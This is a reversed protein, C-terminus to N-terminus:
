WYRDEGEGREELPADPRETEPIEEAPRGDADERMRPEERERGDARDAGIPPRIGRDGAEVVGWGDEATPDEAAERSGGWTSALEARAEGDIVLEYRREDGAGDLPM